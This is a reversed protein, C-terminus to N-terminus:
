PGGLVKGEVKKEPEQNKPKMQIENQYDTQAKELKRETERIEKALQEHKKQENVQLTLADRLLTPLNETLKENKAIDLKRNNILPVLIGKQKTLSEHLVEDFREPKEIYKKHFSVQAKQYEEELTSVDNKLLDYNLAVADHKKLAKMTDAKVKQLKAETEQLKEKTPSLLEKKHAAEEQEHQKQAQTNEKEMQKYQQKAEKLIKEYDALQQDEGKNRKWYGLKDTFQKIKITYIDITKKQEAMQNDRLAQEAEFQTDRVSKERNYQMELYEKPSVWAGDKQGYYSAITLEMQASKLDAHYQELKTKKDELKVRKQELKEAATKKRDDFGKKYENAKIKDEVDKLENVWKELEQEMQAKARAGNKEHYHLASIEKERQKVRADLPDFVKKLDNLKENCQKITTKYTEIRQQKLLRAEEEERQKLLLQRQKEEQEKLLRLREEEEKQLRLKEEQEKQKLEAQRKAENEEVLDANEEEEDAEVIVSTELVNEFQNRAEVEPVPQPVDNVPANEPQREIPQQEIPHQEVPREVVFRRPDYSRALDSQALTSVKDVNRQMNAYFTRYAQARGAAEGSRGLFLRAFLDCIKEYLTLEAPPNEMGDLLARQEDRIAMAMQPNLFQMYTKDGVQVCALCFVAGDSNSLLMATNDRELVDRVIGITNSQLDRIENENEGFTVTQIRLNGNAGRSAADLYSSLVEGFTDHTVETSVAGVIQQAKAVYQQPINFDLM